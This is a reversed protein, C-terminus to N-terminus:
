GLNLILNRVYGNDYQYLYGFPNCLVRTGCSLVIDVHDHVHGHVWVDVQHDILEKADFTNHYTHNSWRENAYDPHSSKLSPTHHTVVMVKRGEDNARDVADWLWEAQRKHIDLIHKARVRATGSGIYIRQYDKSKQEALVKVMSNDRGYSTWMTTMIIRYDDIDYEGTVDPGSPMIMKSFDIDFKKITARIIRDWCTEVDRYYFEHNGPVYVVARFRSTVDKWFPETLHVVEGTLIDGALVLVSDVDRHDDPLINHILRAWGKEDLPTLTRKVTTQLYKELHCDSLFRFSTQM